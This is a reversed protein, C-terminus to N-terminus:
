SAHSSRQRLRSAVGDDADPVFPMAGLSTRGATDVGTLPNLPGETPPGSGCRETGRLCCTPFNAPCNKGHPPRARGGTASRHRPVQSQQLRTRADMLGGPTSCNESLGQSHCGFIWRRAALAQHWASPDVAMGNPNAIRPPPSSWAVSRCWAFSQRFTKRHQLDSVSHSLPYISSVRTVMVRRPSM